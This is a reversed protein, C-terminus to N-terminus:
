AGGCAPSPLVPVPAARKRRKRGPSSKAPPRTMKVDIPADWAREIRIVPLIIISAAEATRAPTEHSRRRQPFKIVEGM